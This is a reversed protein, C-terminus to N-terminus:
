LFIHFFIDANFLIDQNQITSENGELVFLKVIDIANIVNQLRQDNWIIEEDALPESILYALKPLCNSFNNIQFM